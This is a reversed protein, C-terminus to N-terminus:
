RELCDCCLFVHFLLVLEFTWVKNAVKMKAAEVEEKSRRRIEYKKTGHKLETIVPIEHGNEKAWKKHPPENWGNVARYIDFEYEIPGNNKSRKRKMGNDPNSGVSNRLTLGHTAKTNAKKQFQNRINDNQKARIRALISCQPPKKYAERKTRVPWWRCTCCCQYVINNNVQDTFTGYMMGHVMKLEELTLNTHKFYRFLGAVDKVYQGQGEKTPDELKAEQIKSNILLISTQKAIRSIEAFMARM